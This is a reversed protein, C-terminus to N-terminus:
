LFHHLVICLAQFLTNGSLSDVALWCFLTLPEHQLEQRGTVKAIQLSGGLCRVKEREQVETWVSWEWSGIYGEREGKRLLGQFCSMIFLPFFHFVISIVCECASRLLKTFYYKIHSRRPPSICGYYLIYNLSGSCVCLITFNM